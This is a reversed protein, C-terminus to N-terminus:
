MEDGDRDRKGSEKKGGYGQNRVEWEAVAESAAEGLASQCVFM